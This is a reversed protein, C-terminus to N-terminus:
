HKFCHKNDAYRTHESHSNWISPGAESFAREGFRTRTRPVAHNIGRKIIICEAPKYCHKADVEAPTSHCTTAYLATTM